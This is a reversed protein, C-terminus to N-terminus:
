TPLGYAYELYNGTLGWANAVNEFRDARDDGDTDILRTVEGRNVVLVNGDVVALGLCDHLGAAFQEFHVDATSERGANEVLYVFGRRSSVALRGDPLFDIGGGEITVGPP